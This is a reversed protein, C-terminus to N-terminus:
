DADLFVNYTSAHPLGFPGGPYVVAQEIRRQYEAPLRTRQQPVPQTAAQPTDSAPVGAPGRVHTSILLLVFALMVLPPLLATLLPVPKREALAKAVVEAAVQAQLCEQRWREAMAVPAVLRLWTPTHRLLYDFHPLMRQRGETDLETGQRLCILMHQHWLVQDPTQADFMQQEVLAQNLVAGDWGLSAVRSADGAWGFAAAAAPLLLEHGPQWGVALQAALRREFATAADLNVLAGSDLSRRLAAAVTELDLADEQALAALAANFRAQEDAAAGDPSVVAEAPSPPVPEAEEELAHPLTAWALAHEYSARLQQFKASELEQDLQKLQRAYARRIAREDADAGLGLQLLFSPVDQVDSDATTM